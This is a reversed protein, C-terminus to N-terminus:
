KTNIHDLIYVKNNQLDQVAFLGMGENDVYICKVTKGSLANYIELKLMAAKFVEGCWICKSATVEKTMQKM